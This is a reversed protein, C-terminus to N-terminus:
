RAVAPAADAVDLAAMSILISIPPPHLIDTPSDTLSKCNNSITIYISHFQFVISV